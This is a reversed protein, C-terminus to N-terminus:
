SVSSIIAKSYTQSLFIDYLNLRFVLKQTTNTNQMDCIYM